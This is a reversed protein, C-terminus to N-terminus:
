VSSNTEVQQLYFISPMNYESIVISQEILTPTTYKIIVCNGCSSNVKALIGDKRLGYRECM